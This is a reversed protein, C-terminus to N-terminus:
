FLEIIERLRVNLLGFENQTNLQKVNNFYIQAIKNLNRQNESISLGSFRTMSELANMFKSNLDKRLASDTLINWGLIAGEVDTNGTLIPVKSFKKKGYPGHIKVCFPHPRESQILNATRWWQCLLISQINSGRRFTHM